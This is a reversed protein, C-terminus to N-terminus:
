AGGPGWPWWSQREDPAPPTDYLRPARGVFVIWLVVFFVAGVIALKWSFEGKAFIFLLWIPIAIALAKLAAILYRELMHATRTQM